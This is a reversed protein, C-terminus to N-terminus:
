KNDVIDRVFAQYEETPEQDAKTMYTTMSKINDSDFARQEIHWAVKILSDSIGVPEKHQSGVGIQTVKM